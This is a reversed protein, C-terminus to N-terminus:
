ATKERRALRSRDDVYAYFVRHRDRERGTRKRRDKRQSGKQRVRPKKFFTEPFLPELEARFPSDLLLNGIETSIASAVPGIEDYYNQEGIYYEDKTNLTYRTYALSAFTGYKEEEALYKRYAAEVAKASTAAANTKKFEEAAAKLNEIEYRSYPLDKCNVVKDM